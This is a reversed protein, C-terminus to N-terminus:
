PKRNQQGRSLDRHSIEDPAIAAPSLVYPPRSRAAGPKLVYPRGYYRDEKKGQARCAIPHPRPSRQLTGGAGPVNRTSTHPSCNAHYKRYGPGSPWNPGTEGLRIFSPV